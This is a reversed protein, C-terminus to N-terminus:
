RKRPQRGSTRRRHRDPDARRDRANRSGDRRGQDVAVPFRVTGPVTQDKSPLEGVNTIRQERWEAYRGEPTTELSRLRPGRLSGWGNRPEEGNLWLEAMRLENAEELTKAAEESMSLHEWEQRMRKQPTHLNRGKLRQAVARAIWDVGLTADDTLAIEITAETPATPDEGKRFGRLESSQVQGNDDVVAHVHINAPWTDSDEYPVARM